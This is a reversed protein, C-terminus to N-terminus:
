HCTANLALGVNLQKGNIASRLMTVVSEWWSTPM